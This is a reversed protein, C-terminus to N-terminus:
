SNFLNIMEQEIKDLEIRKQYSKLISEHKKIEDNLFQKLGKTFFYWELDKQFDSFRSHLENESFQSSPFVHIMSISPNATKLQNLRLTPDNKTKGIKITAHARDEMIYTYEDCDTIEYEINEDNNFVSLKKWILDQSTVQYLLIKEIKEEEQYIIPEISEIVQKNYDLLRFKMPNNGIIEFYKTKYQDKENCPSDKSSYLMISNLSAWPTKGKSPVLNKEKIKNWIENPSMPLNGNEVLISKAADIFKM